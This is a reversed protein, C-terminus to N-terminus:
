WTPITSRGTQKLRDKWLLQSSGISSNGNEDIGGGSQGFMFCQEWFIGRDACVDLRSDQLDKLDRLEKDPRTLRPERPLLKFANSDVLKYSSSGQQLTSSFGEVYINSPADKAYAYNQDLLFTSAVLLMPAVRLCGASFMRKAASQIERHIANNTEGCEMNYRSQM